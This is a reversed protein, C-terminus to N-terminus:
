VVVVEELERPAPCAKPEVDRAKKAFLYRIWLSVYYITTSLTAVFQYMSVPMDREMYPIVAIAIFSVIMFFM